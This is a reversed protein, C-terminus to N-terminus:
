EIMDQMLRLYSIAEGIYQRETSYQTNINSLKVILEPIREKMNPLIARPIAVPPMPPIKQLEIM